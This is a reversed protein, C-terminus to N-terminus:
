AGRGCLPVQLWLQYHWLMYATYALWVGVVSWALAGRMGEFFRKVM